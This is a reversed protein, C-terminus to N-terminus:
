IVWVDNLVQIPENIVLEIFQEDSYFPCFFTVEFKHYFFSHFFVYIKLLFFNDIVDALYSTSKLVHVLLSDHMTIQLGRVNENIIVTIQLYTIQSEAPLKARM